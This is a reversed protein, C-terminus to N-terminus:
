STFALEDLIKQKELGTLRGITMQVIAESQIEDINFRDQLRQKGEPISKSTKMIEIVEDIFDLAISLGELIHAREKAKRLEFKTRNVIVETQFIM